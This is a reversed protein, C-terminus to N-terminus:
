IESRVNPIERGVGAVRGPARAAPRGPRDPKPRPIHWQLIWPFQEHHRRYLVGLHWTFFHGFYVAVLLTTYEVSPHRLVNLWPHDVIWAQPLLHYGFIHGFYIGLTALCGALSVLYGRGCARIVGLVRDPRLNLFTTGTVTTLILAPLFVLGVAALMLALPERIGDPVRKSMLVFVAPGLALGLSLVMQGLPAWLDDWLSLDRLPRPLEDHGDPGTSEVVNAYHSLIVLTLPINFLALVLVQAFAQAAAHMLFIFFMVVMNLPMFLELMIRGATLRDNVRDTFYTLAAKAVPIPGTPQVPDEKLDLPRILEGTIPDYKPTPRVYQPPSEEGALAIEEPTLRLDIEQGAEDTTSRIYTRRLKALDDQRPPLEALELEITGDERLHPLDSLTPVDCLRGCQPCQILGGALEDPVELRFQCTCPFQIM